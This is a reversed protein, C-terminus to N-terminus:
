RAQEALIDDYTVKNVRGHRSLSLITDAGKLTNMRHAIILVTKDRTLEDISDLVQQECLPDLNSTPEDLVLLPADKLFARALALRQAQGGSFRAGGEGIITDYGQPLTTLFDHLHAKQAATQLDQDSANPQALLLNEKVSAHFLYPHQAVWAIQQQWLSMPIDELDRPGIRIGGKQPDLLKLFLKCLTTKGSGSPGVLVVKQGPSLLFSVQSLVPGPSGPYQFGVNEFRIDAEWFKSPSATCSSSKMQPRALLEFIRQSAQFGEMGAHFRAGLQRLPQYFEPALILVFLGHEFGMRGYLIRLGIGVAVIATSITALMELTLASLFAIRLGKMTTHRFQESVEAIRHGYDRSRGLLKLTVIGQIVDLFFASMRSLVIWQKQTVRQASDGILVMFLPILPATLLFIFGSVWDIPFVVCVILLPILVALILQPLYESFYPELADIGRGVTNVLEGTQHHDGNQPSATALHRILQQRLRHKITRAISSSVSTEIRELLYRLGSLAAFWVLNHRVDPFGAHNLFVADIVHALVLAQVVIVLGMLSASLVSCLFPLKAHNLQAILKRSLNM